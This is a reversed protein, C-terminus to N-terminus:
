KYLKHQEILDSAEELIIMKGMLMHTTIHCHIAWM